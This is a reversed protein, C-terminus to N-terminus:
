EARVVGYPYVKGKIQELKTLMEHHKLEDATLYSVIFTSFFDKSKTIATNALVMSKAEAQM